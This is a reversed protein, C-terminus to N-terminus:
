IQWISCCHKMNQGCIKKGAVAIYSPSRVRDMLQDKDDQLFKIATFVWIRKSINIQLSISLFKRLSSSYLLIRSARLFHITFYFSKAMRKRAKEQCNINTPQTQRVFLRVLQHIIISTMSYLVVIVPILFARKLHFDHSQHRENTKTTTQFFHSFESQDLCNEHFEIIAILSSFFPLQLSLRDLLLWLFYIFIIKAEENTKGRRWLFEM